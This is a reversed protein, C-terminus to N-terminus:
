KRKMLVLPGKNSLDTSRHAISHGSQALVRAHDFYAKRDQAMKTDADKRAIADQELEREKALYSLITYIKRYTDRARGSIGPHRDEHYNTRTDLLQTYTMGRLRAHKALQSKAFMMRAEFIGTKIPGIASQSFDIALGIEESVRVPKSIDQDLSSGGYKIFTSLIAQLQRARDINQSLSSVVIWTSVHVDDSSVLKLKDFEAISDNLRRVLTRVFMGLTVVSPQEECSSVPDSEPIPDQTTSSGSLRSRLEDLHANSDPGSVAAFMDDLYPHTVLDAKGSNVIVEPVYSFNLEGSGFLKDKKEILQIIKIIIASDTQM